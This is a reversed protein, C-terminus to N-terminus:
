GWRMREHLWYYVKYVREAAGRVYKGQSCAPLRPLRTKPACACPLQSPSCPMCAHASRAANSPGWRSAFVHHRFSRWAGLKKLAGDWQDGNLTPM